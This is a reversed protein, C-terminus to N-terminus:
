ILQGSAFNYHFIHISLDPVNYTSRLLRQNGICINMHQFTKKIRLFGVPQQMPQVLSDEPPLITQPQKAPLM